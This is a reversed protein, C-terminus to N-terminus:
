VLAIDLQSLVSSIPNGGTIGLNGNGGSQSGAFLLAVPAGSTDVILSGSDGPKSFPTSAGRRAEFIIQGDFRAVGLRGMDVTYNNVNIARVVGTTHGTTRGTKMVDLGPLVISTADPSLTGAPSPPDGNDWITRADYTVGAALEAFAADVVNTAGGFLIPVFNALKAVIDAPGSGEDGGAPQIIDAGIPVSNVDALVHNNSVLGDRGTKRSRAIFGLTGSYGARHPSISAGMRLPRHRSRAWLPQQRGIYLVEVEGKAIDRIRDIAGSHLFRQNQVLVALKADGESDGPGMGLAVDEEIRRPRSAKRANAPNLLHPDVFLSSSASIETGFASGMFPIEEFGLVERFVRSQLEEISEPLM